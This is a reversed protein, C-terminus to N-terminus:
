LMNSAWGTPGRVHYTVTDETRMFVVQNTGLNLMSILLDESVNTDVPGVPSVSTSNDTQNELENYIFEIIQM